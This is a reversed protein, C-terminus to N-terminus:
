KSEDEIWRAGVELLIFLVLGIVQRPSEQPNCVAEDARGHWRMVVREPSEVM